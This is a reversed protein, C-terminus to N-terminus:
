NRKQQLLKEYERDVLNNKPFVYAGVYHFFLGIGWGILPFLPWPFGSDSSNRKDSLFWVMWLFTNVAIYSFFHYKFSARRRALELLEPDRGQQQNFQEMIPM